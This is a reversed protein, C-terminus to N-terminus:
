IVPNCNPNRITPIPILCRSLCESSCSATKPSLVDFQIRESFAVTECTSHVSVPQPCDTHWDWVCAGQPMVTSYPYAGLLAMSPQLESVLAPIQETCTKSEGQSPEAESAGRAWGGCSEELGLKIWPEPYRRCVSSDADDGLLESVMERMGGEREGEESMASPEHCLSHIEYSPTSAYVDIQGPDVTTLTPDEKCDLVSAKDCLCISDNPVVYPDFISTDAHVKISQSLTEPPIDKDLPPHEEKMENMEESNIGNSDGIQHLCDAADHQLDIDLEPNVCDSPVSSPPESATQPTLPQQEATDAPEHKAPVTLPPDTQTEQAAATEEAEECVHMSVKEPPNVEPQTQRCGSEATDTEPCFSPEGEESSTCPSSFSLSLEREAPPSQTLPSLSELDEPGHLTISTNVALSDDSLLDCKEHSMVLYATNEATEPLVFTVEGKEVHISTQCIDPNARRDDGSMYVDQVPEDSDSLVVGETKVDSSDLQKDCDNFTAESHESETFEPDVGQSPPKTSSLEFAPDNSNVESQDSTVSVCQHASTKVDSLCTLNTHCSLVTLETPLSSGASITSVSSVETLTTDATGSHGADVEESHSRCMSVPVVESHLSSRDMEIQGPPLVVEETHPPKLNLDLKSSVPSQSSSDLEPTEAAAPQSSQIHQETLLDSTHLHDHLPNFDSGVSQDVEKEQCEVVTEETASFLGEAARQDGFHVSEEVLCVSEVCVCEESGEEFASEDTCSTILPDDKSEDTDHAAAQSNLHEPQPSDQTSAQPEESNIQSSSPPLSDCLPDVLHPHPITTQEASVSSDSLKQPLVTSSQAAAHSPAPAPEEDRSRSTMKPETVYSRECVAAAETHSQSSVASVVVCPLAATQVEATHLSQTSGATQSQSHNHDHELDDADISCISYFSRTRTEFGQCLTTAVVCIDEDSREAEPSDRQTGQCMSVPPPLQDDSVESVTVNGLCNSSPLRTPAPWCSLHKHQKQGDSLQYFWSSRVAANKQRVEMYPAPGCSPRAAHTVGAEADTNTHMNTSTTIIIAEKEEHTSAAKLDSQSHTTSVVAAETCVKRDLENPSEEDEPPKRRTEEEDLCVHQAVAAVHQRLQETVDNLGDHLPPQLLGSRENQLGPNLEKSFCCGMKKPRSHSYFM